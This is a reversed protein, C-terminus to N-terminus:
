RCGSSSQQNRLCAAGAISITETDKTATLSVQVVRIKDRESQPTVPASMTVGNQDLYAFDIATVGAVLTVTSGGYSWNLSSGQLQYNIGTETAGDGDLDADFQFRQDSASSVSSALSAERTLRDMANALQMRITEREDAANVVRLGVIVTEYVAGMFLGLLTIVLLLELLSVGRDSEPVIRRCASM